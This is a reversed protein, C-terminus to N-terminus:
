GYRAAFRDFGAQARALYDRAHAKYDVGPTRLHVDSVLAWLAERLASAAKMALFARRLDDGVKREFYADLLAMDDAEDFDGNSSLNALDFMATGFGGYEWDILWLREGDDIFNGPLLDHHGFVIPLPVQAEEFRDAWELYRRDGDLLAVYDRIVHFVWFANVPGRVHRGVKTHCDKLLPVLRGIDARLDDEGLTRGDIFRLVMIGPEVHIIEPSLGAEFAAVSAARERDRFVHHVPIDEGCRVVFKEGCCTAVFSINTLGGKLQSLEVPRRWCALRAVKDLLDTMRGKADRRARGFSGFRIM